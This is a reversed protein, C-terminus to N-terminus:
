LNKGMASKPLRFRAQGEGIFRPVRASEVRAAGMRKGDFGLAM